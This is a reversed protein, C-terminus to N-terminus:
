RAVTCPLIMQITNLEDFNTKNSEVRPFRELLSVTYGHLVSEHTLGPNGFIVGYKYVYLCVMYLAHETLIHLEYAIM